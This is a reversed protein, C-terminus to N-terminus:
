EDEDKVLKLYPERGEPPHWYNAKHGAIMRQRKRWGLNYVIRSVRMQSSTDQDKPLIGLGLSSSMIDALTIPSTVGDLQKRIIPEWSDEIERSEQERRATTMVSNDLWWQDGAKYSAVAEAWLQDRNEVIWNVNIEGIKVPWFRRNGPQKSLYESDNTSGIFICERPHTISSKGYPPRFKDVRTSLYAKMHEVRSTSKLQGLEAMEIIWSGLLHEMADKSGLNVPLTESFWESKPCLARIATSKKAGEQGELILMTDVKAGPDYVRAVAGILVCRSVASRYEAHELTQSEAGLATELWHHIRLEGDWKHSELYAVVPHFRNQYAIAMMVDYATGPTAKGFQSSQLFMCFELTDQEEWPRPVFHKPPHKLSPLPRMLIPTLSFENFAVFGDMLKMGNILNVMNRLNSAKRKKEGEDGGTLERAKHYDEHAKDMQEITAPGDEVPERAHAKIYAVPDGGEEILDAV